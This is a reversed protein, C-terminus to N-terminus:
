EWRYLGDDYLVRHRRSGPGVTARRRPMMSERLKLREAEEEEERQLRLARERALKEKWHKEDLSMSQVASVLDDHRDRRSRREPHSSQRAPQPSPKPNNVRVPRSSIEANAKEIRERLQKARIAAEERQKAEKQEKKERRLRRREEDDASPHSDRSSSSPQRSRRRSPSGVLEIHFRPREDVIYPKKSSSFSPSSPERPSSSYPVALNANPSPPATHPLQFTQPPTRPTPPNDVLVIRERRSQGHSERRSTDNVRQGNVYVGSRRRNSSSHHSRDSSEGSRHTSPRPSYSPTPPLNPGYANYPMPNAYQPVARPHQITVHKSCPLGYRSSACLTVQPAPVRRGDPYVYTFVNTTCM